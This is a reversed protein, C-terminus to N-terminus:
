FGADTLQRIRTDAWYLKEASVRPLLRRLVQLLLLSNRFPGCNRRPCLSAGSMQRNASCNSLAYHQRLLIKTSRMKPVKKVGNLHLRKVTLPSTLPQFRCQNSRLSTNMESITRVSFSKVKTPSLYERQEVESGNVFVSQVRLADKNPQASAGPTPQKTISELTQRRLFILAITQRLDASPSPGASSNRRRSLSVRRQFSQCSITKM